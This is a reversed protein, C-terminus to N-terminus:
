SLIVVCMEAATLFQIRELYLFIQEVPSARGWKKNLIQKFVPRRVRKNLYLKLKVSSVADHVWNSLRCQVPGTLVEGQVTLGHQTRPRSPFNSVPM